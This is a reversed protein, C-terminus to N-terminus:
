HGSDIGTALSATRDPFHTIKAAEREKTFWLCFLSSHWSQVYLGFMHM